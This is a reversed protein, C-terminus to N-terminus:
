EDDHTFGPILKYRPVPSVVPIGPVIALGLDVSGQFTRYLMQLFGSCFGLPFRAYGAKDLAKPPTIAAAVPDAPATVIGNLGTLASAGVGSAYEVFANPEEEEEEEAEAEAEPAEAAAAEAEPDEPEEATAEGPEEAAAAEEAADSPAAEEAASALPYLLAALLALATATRRMSGEEEVPDRPRWM